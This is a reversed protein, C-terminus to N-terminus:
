EFLVQDVSLDCALWVCPSQRIRCTRTLDIREETVDLAEVVLAGDVYEGVSCARNAILKQRRNRRTDHTRAIGYRTMM